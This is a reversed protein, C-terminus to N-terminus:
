DRNGSNLGAKRRRTRPEDGEEHQRKASSKVIRDAGDKLNSAIECDLNPPRLLEDVLRERFTDYPEFRIKKVTIIPWKLYTTANKPNEIAGLLESTFQAEYLYIFEYDPWKAVLLRSTHTTPKKTALSREQLQAISLLICVLYPDEKWNAPTIQALRKEFIRAVPANNYTPHGMPQLREKRGYFLDLYDFYGILSQTENESPQNDKKRRRFVPYKPRHIGQGAFYFKPGSECLVEFASGEYVLIRYLSGLKATAASITALRRADSPDSTPLRVPEQDFDTSKHTGDKNQAQHMVTNDGTYETQKLWKFRCGVLDLHRSTWFLPDVFLERHYRMLSALPQPEMGPQM